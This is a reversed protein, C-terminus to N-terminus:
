VGCHDQRLDERSGSDRPRRGDRERLSDIGIQADRVGLLVVQRHLMLAPIGAESDGVDPSVRPLAIVSEIDVLGDWVRAAEALLRAKEGLIRRDIIARVARAM